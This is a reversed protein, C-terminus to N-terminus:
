RDSAALGPQNARGAAIALTELMAVDSSAVVRVVIGGGPLISDAAAIALSHLGMDTLLKELRSSELGPVYVFSMGPRGTPITGCNGIVQTDAINRAVTFAEKHWDPKTV